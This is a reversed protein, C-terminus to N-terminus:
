KTKKARNECYDEREKSVLRAMSRRSRIISKDYEKQEKLVLRAM